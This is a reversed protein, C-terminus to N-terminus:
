LKASIFDDSSHVSYVDQVITQATIDKAIIGSDLRTEKKTFVILAIVHVLNIWGILTLCVCRVRSRGWVKEVV